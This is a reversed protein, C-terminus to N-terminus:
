RTLWLWFAIVAVLCFLACGGTPIDDPERCTRPAPFPFYQPGRNM